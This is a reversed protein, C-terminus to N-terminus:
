LSPPVKMVTNWGRGQPMQISVNAKTRPLVLFAWPRPVAVQAVPANSMVPAIRLFAEKGLVFGNLVRYGVIGRTPGAFLAVVVNKKFDVPPAPNLNGLRANGISENRIHTNWVQNWTAADGCLFTGSGDFWTESGSDATVPAFKEVKSLVEQAVLLDVYNSVGISPIIM